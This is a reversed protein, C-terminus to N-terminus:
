FDTWYISCIRLVIIIWAFCETYLIDIDITDGSERDDYLSLM